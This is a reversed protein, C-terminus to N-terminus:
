NEHTRWILSFILMFYKGVFIKEARVNGLICYELYSKGGGKIGLQDLGSM